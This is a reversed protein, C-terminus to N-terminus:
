RTEVKGAETSSIGLLYWFIFYMSPLLGLIPSDSTEIKKKRKIENAEKKQNESKEIITKCKRFYFAKELSVRSPTFFVVTV